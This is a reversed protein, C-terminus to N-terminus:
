LLLTSRWHFFHTANTADNGFGTVIEINLIHWITSHAEVFERLKLNGEKQCRVSSNMFPGLELIIDLDESIRFIYGPISYSPTWYEKITGKHM